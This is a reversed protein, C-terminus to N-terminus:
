RLGQGYHPNTTPILHFAMHREINNFKFLCTEKTRDDGALLSVSNGVVLGPIMHQLLMNDGDQKEIMGKYEDKSMVGLAFFSPDTSRFAAAGPVTVTLGDIASVTGNFLFGSESVGCTFPDYTNWVCQKRQWRGRPMIVDLRAQLPVAQVECIEGNFDAGRLEGYFIIAPDTVDGLQLMSIRVSIPTPAAGQQLVLGVDSDTPLTIPVTGPNDESGREIEGHTIELPTYLQGNFALQTRHNTYCWDEGGRLFHYYYRPQGKDRSAELLRRSM